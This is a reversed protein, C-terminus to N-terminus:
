HVQLAMVVASRAEPFPLLAEIVHGVVVQFEASQHLNIQIAPPPTLAGQMRGILEILRTGERIATVAGRTDGKAEAESLLAEVRVRLAEIDNLLASGQEVVAEGHAAVLAKPMCGERHRRLAQPSVHYKRGIVALPQAALLARNVTTLAPLACITCSRM